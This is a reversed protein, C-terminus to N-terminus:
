GRTYENASDALPALLDPPTRPNHGIGWDFLYNGRGAYRRLVAEPTKPSGLVSNIVYENRSDALHVLTAETVNPHLAVLRMVALGRRNAGLVRSSGYLKEHLKRDRRHAIEDLIASTAAPNQAVAALFLVDDRWPST